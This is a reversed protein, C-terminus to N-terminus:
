PEATVAVLLPASATRNSVYDMWEIAVSPRPNEWVTHFLRLATGHSNTGTWAVTSDSARPTGKGTVVCNDVHRGYIIPIGAEEGDAYRLVYSGISEGASAPWGAAHLFHLRRFVRSIPVNTIQEPCKVHFDELKSSTLLVAGRLDFQVEDLRALGRPLASLNYVPPATDNTRISKDTGHFDQELGVNYFLTLDILGAPTGPQRLPIGKTLAYDSAAEAYRGSRRFLESRNTRAMQLIESWQNTDASALEITQTLVPLANEFQKARTLILAKDLTLTPDSPRLAIALDIARTADDFRSTKLLEEAREQWDEPTDALASLAGQALLDAEAPGAAKLRFGGDDSVAVFTQDDAFFIKDMRNKLGRYTFVENPYQTTVDWFKIRRSSIQPEKPPAPGTAGMPSRIPTFVQGGPATVLRKSDASFTLVSKGWNARWYATEKRAAVNFLGVFGDKDAVALLKGDPSIAIDELSKGTGSCIAIEKGTAADWMKVRGNTAGICAWHSDASFLLQRSNGEPFDVSGVEKLTIVDWLRTVTRQTAVALLRGNPSFTPNTLPDGSAERLNAFLCNGKLDWLKLSGDQTTLGLLRRDATIAAGTLNTVPLNHRAIQRFSATETLVIAGNAKWWLLTRRDASVAWNTFGAPSHFRSVDKPLRAASWLRVTRDASGSVLTVGNPSFALCRVSETHGRLTMMEQWTITDWLRIVQDGGVTALTGGDPSFLTAYVWALHNTLPPKQEGSVLDWIRITNDWGGSALMGNPSFGLGSIYNGHDLPKFTSRGLLDFIYIKFDHHGVALARGDRAYALAGALWYARRFRTGTDFTARNTHSDTDWLRVCGDGCLSALTRGDPSFVCARVWDPHELRALERGAQLDWLRVFRDMAASALLKGDPSFDVGLVIAGHNFQAVNRQNVVSWLRVTEDQSASAVTKGDPSFAVSLVAMEHQGLTALEGYPSFRSLYRWEWGRLDKGDAEPLNRKLLSRARVFDSDEYAQIALNMDGVYQNLRARQEKEELQLRLRHSYWLLGALAAIVVGALGATRVVGKIFATRQRRLEAGPINERIWGHDFAHAYIRNRVHLCGGVVQAIGSLRLITVLPNTEDDTVRKGSLVQRYLLLLGGLDGEGRLMGDRVFLLNPDSVRAQSSFFLNNCVRDVGGAGLAEPNQVMEHCLRQTLYPHGHTWHLIRKLLAQALNDERGLGRALPFAETETFDQLEIRRGINFPTSRMDRILDSPVAVGLLCFTLRNFEPDESRRSYCERIAAFFEDTSFPLSRVYDIEDVFIILGNSKQSKVFAEKGESPGPPLPDDVRPLASAGEKLKPLVVEELAAMWRQLPGLEGHASWFENLENEMGLQRSMRRLLGAYWPESTAPKGVATLDLVVVRYGEERLRLATRVMLSSKGMQRATLVYCFEGRKVGEYLETDAQREV